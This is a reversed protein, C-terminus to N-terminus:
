WEVNFGLGLSPGGATSNRAQYGLRGIVSMEPTLEWGLEYVARVGPSAGEDLRDSVDATGPRLPGAPTDTVHLEVAMPYRPVTDWDFRAWVDFGVRQISQAGLEFRSGTAQGLRISAAGGIAFGVDDAGLILRGQLGVDDRGSLSVEAYGYDMGTDRQEFVSCDAACTVTGSGEFAAPPPVEGRMSVVGLRIYPIKGLIRHLYEAELRYHSDGYAGCDVGGEIFGGHSGFSVWEASVRARNAHGRHRLLRDRRAVSEAPPIVLVPHPAQPSAFVAVAEDGQLRAAVYYEVLPPAVNLAPVIVTYRGDPAKGFPLERWAGNPNRVGLTLASLRWGGEVTVEVVLPSGATVESVPTHQFTTREADDARAIAASALLILLVYSRM